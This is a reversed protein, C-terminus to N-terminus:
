PVENASVLGLRSYVVPKFVAAIQLQMLQFWEFNQSAAIELGTAWKLEHKYCM